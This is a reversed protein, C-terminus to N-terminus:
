ATNHVADYQARLWIKQIQSLGSVLQNRKLADTARYRPYIFNHALVYGNNGGSMGREIMRRAARMAWFLRSHAMWIQRCSRATPLFFGLIGEM